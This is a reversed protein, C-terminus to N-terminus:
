AFWEQAKALREPVHVGNPCRVSCASCDSCRVERAEEPLAQFHERGLAYQGYFDAYALYRLTEPVRVGKPCQGSCQNCMRCYLPRIQEDVRALLKADGAGFPESLARLNTELQDMDVMSPIATTFRENRLVWKLAALPAGSREMRGSRDAKFGYERAAPAMVKMAVLGTGARNLKAFAGDSNTGITFNYTSLVVEFTGAQIIRDAMLNPFHTSIGIHRIKGQKKATEWASLMADSIEKPDDVAHMYWIDVHDTGLTKLSTELDTMAERAKRSQSKTSLILKDRKGRVAAGVMRENNGNQYARATDFHTIGADIAREVVSPDSTIMCGFSVPPLKLGTKGLARVAPVAAATMGPAAPSTVAAAPLALGGAIFDRRSSHM